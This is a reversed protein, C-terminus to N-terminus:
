KQVRCIMHRPGPDGLHCRAAGPFPRYKGASEDSRFSLRPDVNSDNSRPDVSFFLSRDLEVTRLFRLVNEAFFVERLGGEAAEGCM